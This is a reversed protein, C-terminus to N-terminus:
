KHIKGGSLECLFKSILEMEPNRFAHNLYCVPESYHYSNAEIHEECAKATFFTNVYTHHNDEYYRDFGKENLLDNLDWSDMARFKEESVGDEIIVASLQREDESLWEIAEETTRVEQEQESNYWVEEGCGEHAAIKKTEQIQFMHPMATHRNDQTTMEKSLEFLAEYMEDTVEITRM